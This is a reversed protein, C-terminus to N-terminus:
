RIKQNQHYSAGDTLVMVKEKRTDHKRVIFAILEKVIRMTSSTRMNHNQCRILLDGVSSIIGVITFRKVPISHM